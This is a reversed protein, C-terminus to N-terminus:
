VNMCWNMANDFVVGVDSKDLIVPNTRFTIDKMAGSVVRTKDTIISELKEKGPIISSETLIEKINDSLHFISKYGIESALVDFRDSRKSNYDIVPVLFMANAVGHGIGNNGLQHAFSHTLGVSCHNQVIGAYYASFCLSELVDDNIGDSLIIKMSQLINKVTMISIPDLMSHSILSVYGEVAHTLADFASSFITEPQASKGLLPDLIVHDPLFDHCVIISKGLSNNTTFAAASSVESGSFTTPVAIFLAKKRFQLDIMSGDIDNLKFDPKEYLLWSLKAMDITSGGGIAIIHDPSFQHLKESLQFIGDETPEGKPKQFVQYVTNKFMQESVKEIIGDTYKSSGTIFATRNLDLENLVSISNKGWHTNTPIRVTQFSLSIPAKEDNYKSKNEGDEIYKNIVKIIDTINNISIVDDVSLQINFQKELELILRLQGISDWKSLDGPGTEDKIENELVSFQESIIRFVKLRIKEVHM